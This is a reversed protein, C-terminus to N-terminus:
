AVTFKVKAFAEKVDIYYGYDCYFDIVTTNGKTYANLKEIGELRKISARDAYLSNTSAFVYFEMEEGWILEAQGAYYKSPLYRLGAIQVEVAVGGNESFIANVTQVNFNANKDAYGNLANVLKQSATLKYWAAEPIVIIIKRSENMGKLTDKLYKIANNVAERFAGGATDAHINGVNFINTGATYEQNKIANHINYDMTVFKSDAVGGTVLKVIEGGEPDDIASMARKTALPITYSKDTYFVAAPLYESPPLLVQTNDGGIGSNSEPSYGLLGEFVPFQMNLANVKIPPLKDFIAQATQSYAALKNSVARELTAIDRSSISM